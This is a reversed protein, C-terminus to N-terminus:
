LNAKLELQAVTRLHVADPGDALRLSRLGAWLNALEFDSSVEAGGHAQIARDLVSLATNPAVV